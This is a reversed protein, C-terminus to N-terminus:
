CDSIHKWGSREKPRNTRLWQPYVVVSYGGPRAKPAIQRAGAIPYKVLVAQTRSPQM